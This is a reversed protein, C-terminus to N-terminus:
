QTAQPYNRKLWEGSNPASSDGTVKKAIKKQAKFFTSTLFPHALEENEQYGLNELMALINASNYLELMPEDLSVFYNLESKFPLSAIYNSLMEDRKPIPYLEWCLTKFGLSPRKNKYEPPSNEPLESTIIILRDHSRFQNELSEWSLHSKDIKSYNLSNEELISTVKSLEDSFHVTILKKGSEMVANIFSRKKSRENKWVRVTRPLPKKGFLKKFFSM